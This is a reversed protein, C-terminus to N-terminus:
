PFLRQFAELILKRRERLFKEYNDVNWLEHDIPIFHRRLIEPDKEYLEKLYRSPLEDGIKENARSSIVTINAFDDILHDMGAAELVDRPFIHHVQLETPRLEGIFPVTPGQDLDWDKAHTERYLAMLLTFHYEDYSGELAERPISKLRLNDLLGEVGKGKGIISIDESLDTELRGTYRKEVSALILWKILSRRIDESIVRGKSIVDRHLFYGLPVLLYHSQLYKSNPIWVERWLFDLSHLLARETEELSSLLDEEKKEDLEKTADKFKTKGTAIALYLRMVVPESVEFNRKELKKLIANFEDRFSVWRARKVRAGVLALVLDPMRIRTGKSNITVFIRSIKEFLELPDGSYGLKAGIFTVEYNNLRERLQELRKFLVKNRIVSDDGCLEAKRELVESVTEANLVDTVNFWKPDKAFNRKGLEFIEEMPNFFLELRREREGRPGAVRIGGRKILLLSTLRQQGDIVMYKMNKEPLDLALPRMLEGCEEIFSSPMEWVIIGGIPYWNYISSALDRIQSNPWVFYRQTEPVAYFGAELRELLEKLIL